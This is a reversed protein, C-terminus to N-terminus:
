RSVVVSGGSDNLGPRLLKNFERTVLDYSEQITDPTHDRLGTRSTARPPLAIEREPSSGETAAWNPRVRSVASVRRGIM